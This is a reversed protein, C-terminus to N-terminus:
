TDEQLYRGYPYLAATLPGCASGASAAGAGAALGLGLLLAALGRM